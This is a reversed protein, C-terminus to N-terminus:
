PLVWAYQPQHVTDMRELTQRDTFERSVIISEELVPSFDRRKEMFELLFTPTGTRFWHPEFEKGNLLMLTSFPNYLFTKGDWSYGNYWYKIKHLVQERAKPEKAAM